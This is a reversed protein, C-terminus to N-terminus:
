GGSPTLLAVCEVHHTMPFLDFTRLNALTYGHTTLYGIDRALAAPDCAVYVIRAPSRAAIRDIVMRGAGARPPDLVIVEVGTATPPLAALTQAVAGERIEAQPLHQANRRADRVACADGEIAIVRGQLGVAAALPLTFLGAGSYLDLVTADAIPGVADLVAEILLRPAERHNQWFGDAAVRYTFTDKTTEVLEVVSDRDDRNPIGDVLLVPESGSAPAILELRQGPHWRRTFVGEAEALAAVETTALPMSNLAIVEHSRHKRMGVRGEDDAILDIRTRYALGDSGQGAHTASEVQVDWDLKALRQLQERIVAAKWRRQGAVSVHALEGGGVGGPGAEPWASPVRDPSPDGLVEVAEARWFKPGGETVVARVREGPLAHRVFIVRGDHRAVCHGGHAYATVEVEVERGVDADPVTPPRSFRRQQFRHNM